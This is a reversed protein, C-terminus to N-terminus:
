VRVTLMLNRQKRFMNCNTVSKAVGDQKGPIDCKETMYQTGYALVLRVSRNCM